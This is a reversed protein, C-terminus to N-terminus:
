ADFHQKIAAECEPIKKLKNVKAQYRGNSGSGKGDLIDCLIPGLVSVDAAKGQLVFKGKMSEDATTIFVFLDKDAIQKLFCGMFESEPGDSRHTSYYKAGTLENVKKVEVAALEKLLKLVARQTSKVTEKLKKVMSVHTIAGCSRM